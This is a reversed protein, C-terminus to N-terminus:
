GLFVLLFFLVNCFSCFVSLQARKTNPVKVQAIQTQVQNANNGQSNYQEDYDAFEAEQPPPSACGDTHQEVSARCLLVQHLRQVEPLSVQLLLGEVMLEELDQSLGAWSFFFSCRTFLLRRQFAVTPLAPLGLAVLGATPHVAARHLLCDSRPEDQEVRADFVPGAPAVDLVVSSKYSQM